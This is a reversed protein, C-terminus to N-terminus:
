LVATGFARNESAVVDTLHDVSTRQVAGWGWGVLAMLGGGFGGIGESCSCHLLNSATHPRACAEATLPFPLVFLNFCCSARACGGARVSVGQKGSALNSTQGVQLM